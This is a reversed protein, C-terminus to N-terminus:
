NQIFSHIGHMQYIYDSIREIKIKLSEFGSGSFLGHLLYMKKVTKLLNSM